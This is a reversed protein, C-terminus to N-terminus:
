SYLGYVPPRWSIGGGLGALPPVIYTMYAFPYSVMVTHVHQGALVVLWLPRTVQGKSRSLPTRSVHSTDVMTSIKTRRHMETRSNRQIYKVISTMYVDSLLM